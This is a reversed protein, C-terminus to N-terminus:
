EKALKSALASSFDKPFGKAHLRKQWEQAGLHENGKLAEVVIEVIANAEWPRFADDELLIRRLEAAIASIQANAIRRGSDQAVSSAHREKLLAPM